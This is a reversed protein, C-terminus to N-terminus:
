RGEIIIHFDGTFISHYLLHYQNYQNRDSCQMIGYFLEGFNDSYHRPHLHYFASNQHCVTNRTEQEITEVICDIDM